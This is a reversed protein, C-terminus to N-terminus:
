RNAAELIKELEKEELKLKVPAPKGTGPHLPLIWYGLGLWEGFKYGTRPEVGYRIFGMAKHFAESAPNPHAILALANYYGQRKLVALLATYLRRGLGLGLRDPSLYVTTEVDWAYAGRDHWPHAYAYGCLVGAANYAVLFPTTQLVSAILECYDNETALNYQFTATSHGVYWNYLAAVNGADEPTAPRITVANEEAWVAALAEKEGKTLAKLAAERRMAESKDACREAYALAEGHHARTYKAGKGTTHARVRRALDNTWGSYLSGDACRLMYAYAPPMTRSKDEAGSAAVGKKSKDPDRM